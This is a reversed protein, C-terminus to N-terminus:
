EEADNDYVVPTGHWGSERKKWFAAKLESSLPGPSDNGM